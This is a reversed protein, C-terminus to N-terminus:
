DEDDEEEDEDYLSEGALEKLMRDWLRITLYLDGDQSFGHVADVAILTFRGENVAAQDLVDAEEGLEATAAVAGRVLPTGWILTVEGGRGGDGNWDGIVMDNLDIEWDPNDDAIVDTFDADAEPAEPAGDEDREYVVYGFYEVITAEGASRGVVPMYTLDGWCREPFFRLTDPDLPAGAEEAISEAEAVFCDKLQQEWDGYPRGEQPTDAMFRPFAKKIPPM